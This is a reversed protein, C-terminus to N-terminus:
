LMDLMTPLAQANVQRSHQIKVRNSACRPMEGHYSFHFSTFRLMFERIFDPNLKQRFFGSNLM